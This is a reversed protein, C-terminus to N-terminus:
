WFGRYFVLVVKHGHAESLRVAHGTQDILRFDPATDGVRPSLAAAGLFLLALTIISRKVRANDALGAILEHQAFRLM